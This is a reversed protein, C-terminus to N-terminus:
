ACADDEPSAAQAAGAAAMAGGDVRFNGCDDTMMRASRHLPPMVILSLLQAFSGQPSL